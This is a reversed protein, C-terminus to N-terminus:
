VFEIGLSYKLPGLNKVAFQKSLQSELENIEVTRNCTIIIDDVYVILLM